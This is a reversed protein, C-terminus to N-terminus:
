SQFRHLRRRQPWGLRAAAEFSKEPWGSEIEKIDAVLEEAYKTTRLYWQEIEKKTVAAGCRWCIGGSSQENSLVTEEKPCWNVASTRKYALGRELMKLFFWQDWKYYDPRHAAIERSWDYSIGLRQMQGKMHAINEKPGIARNCAASSRRRNRRSALVTGASRICCMSDACVSTGPWRTVLRTTACMAWTCIDRRIPLMELAYFKPREDDDRAAFAAADAWRKQWKEEIKEPFYKEDM